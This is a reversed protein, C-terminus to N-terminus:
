SATVTTAAGQPAPALLAWYGRDGVPARHISGDITVTVSTANWRGVAWTHGYAWGSAIPGSGESIFDRWRGDDDRHLVVFEIFTGDDNTDVAAVVLRGLDARALTTGASASGAAARVFEDSPRAGLDSVAPETGETRLVRIGM